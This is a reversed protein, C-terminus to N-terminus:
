FYHCIKHRLPSGMLFVNNTIHLRLIKSTHTCLLIYTLSDFVLVIYLQLMNNKLDVHTILLAIIINTNFTSLM